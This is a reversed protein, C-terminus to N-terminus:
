DGFVGTIMEWLTKERKIKPINISVDKAPEISPFNGPRFDGQIGILEDEEFILSLKKEVREDGGPENSYVYEWRDSHFADQLLPTGMVFAAQRKTMGPKLQDVMEQSLINGQHIDVRYIGPIREISCASASLAIILVLPKRM